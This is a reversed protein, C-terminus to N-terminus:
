DNFKTLFEQIYELDLIGMPDLNNIVSGEIFFNDKPVVM